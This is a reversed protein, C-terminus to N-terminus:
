QVAVTLNPQSQRGDSTVVAPAPGSAVGAPVVCNIQYLGAIAFPAPGSYAIQPATKGGITVTVPFLLVPLNSGGVVSGSPQAPVLQGLGAVWLVVISGPAAPHSPTNLSGDSNLIAGPGSGSSDAAFIGPMTNTVPVTVPASVTGNYEARVQATPQGSVEFPVIAASQKDSVYILPAPLGNILVRAGALATPVNHNSDLAFYALSPPGLGAGFLTVIEGPAVSTVAYSASNTVAALSVTQTTVVATVIINDLVFNSAALPQPPIDIQVEDFTQVGSNFTLVGEPMTDGIYKGSATMSGVTTGDLQKYATLKIPTTLEAQQFDLTGFTLSISTLQRSFKIDLSGTMLSNPYLYNGSFRSMKWGTTSDSQVSYGGGLAASFRATVGSATQDFPTSQGGSLAPTGTDFDFTATQANLLGALQFGLVALVLASCQITM